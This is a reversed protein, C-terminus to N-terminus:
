MLAILVILCCASMSSVSSASSLGYMLKPQSAMANVVDNPGGQGAGGAGAAQGTAGAQEGGGGGGGAFLSGILPLGVLAGLLLGNGMGGGGGDGDGGKKAANPGDADPKTATTNAKNPNQATGPTKPAAGQTKPKRIKSGIKSVARGFGAFM